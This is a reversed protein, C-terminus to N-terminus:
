QWVVGDPDLNNEINQKVGPSMVYRLTDIPTQKCLRELRPPIPSLRFGLPERIWAAKYVSRHQKKCHCDERLKSCREAQLSFSAGDESQEYQWAVVVRATSYHVVTNGTFPTSVFVYMVEVGIICGRLAAGCFTTNSNCPYFM